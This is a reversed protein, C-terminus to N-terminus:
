NLQTELLHALSHASTTKGKSTQMVGYLYNEVYGTLTEAGHVNHGSDPRLVVSDTRSKHNVKKLQNHLGHMGVLIDLGSHPERVGEQVRGTHTHRRHVSDVASGAGMITGFSTKPDQYFGMTSVISLSPSATSNM